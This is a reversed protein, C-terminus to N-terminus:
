PAPHACLTVGHRFTPPMLRGAARYLRNRAESGGFHNAVELRDIELGAAHVQERLERLTYEHLHGPNQACARPPEVPSRGLLLRIRKHLAAGNPTQVVLYGPVRLWGALLGLVAALSTHLHEVVEAMVVIDYEAALQPCRDPVPADNLDFEIHREHARPPFAPHAFGLTDIAVADHASRLLETQVNPGVDLVRLRDPPRVAAALEEIMSLLRAYREAHYEVYAVAEADLAQARQPQSHQWRAFGARVAQASWSRPTPSSVASM